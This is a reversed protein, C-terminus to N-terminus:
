KISATVYVETLLRKSSALGKIKIETTYTLHITNPNDIRLLNPAIQAM